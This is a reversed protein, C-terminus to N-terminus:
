LSQLLDWKNGFPDQFVVVKAYPESRPKELFNVGQALMHAYDADFDDSHLFFGVRGGTQNGIANSQEPSAARALLINTQADPAPAILVWRKAADLKTDQVLTFGLKGVYFAIAQDYDPVVLTLAHIHRSM